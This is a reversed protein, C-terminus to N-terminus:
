FWWDNGSGYVRLGNSFYGNGIVELKYRPGSTGIGVRGTSQQLFIGTSVGYTHLTVGYGSRSYIGHHTDGLYLRGYSSKWGIQIQSNTYVRGNNTILDINGGSEQNQWSM